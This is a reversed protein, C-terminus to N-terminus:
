QSAELRSRQDDYFSACRGTRANQRDLAGRERILVSRVEAGATLEAHSETARCDAPLDGLKVGAAIRGEITASRVLRGQVTTCSTALIM